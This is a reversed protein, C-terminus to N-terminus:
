EAEKWRCQGVGPGLLGLRLRSHRGQVGIQLGLASTRPRRLKEQVAEIGCQTLTENVPDASSTRDTRQLIIARRLQHDATRCRLWRLRRRNLRCCPPSGRAECNEADRLDLVEGVLDM